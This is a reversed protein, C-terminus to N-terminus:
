LFRFVRNANSSTAKIVDEVSIVKINSVIEASFKLNAPVNKVGKEPGLAPSDTELLLNDLPISRIFAKTQDSRGFSPPVSFLYGADLGLKLDDLTGDFAHLVVHDPAM